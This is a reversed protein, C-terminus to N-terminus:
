LLGLFRLFTLWPEDDGAEGGPQNDLQAHGMSTGHSVTDVERTCLKHKSGGIQSDVRPRDLQAGAM